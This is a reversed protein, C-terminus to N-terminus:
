KGCVPFTGSWDSTNGENENECKVMYSTTSLHYGFNCTYTLSTNVPSSTENPSIVGNDIPPPSICTNSEIFSYYKTDAFNKLLLM